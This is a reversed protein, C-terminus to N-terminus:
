YTKNCSTAREKHVARYIAKVSCYAEALNGRLKLKLLSLDRLREEHMIYEVGWVVEAARIKYIDM